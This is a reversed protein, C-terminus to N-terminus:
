NNKHSAYENIDTQFLSRIFQSDYQKYDFLLSLYYDTMEYQFLIDQKEFESGYLNFWSNFLKYRVKQKNDTSDYICIILNGHLLFQRIIEVVTLRIRLDKKNINGKAINLSFEYCKSKLLPYHGFYVEGTTKLEIEYRTGATTVFVIVQKEEDVYYEYPILSNSVEQM